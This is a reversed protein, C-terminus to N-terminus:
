SIVRGDSAVVTFFTQGKPTAFQIYWYSGTNKVLDSIIKVYVEFRGARKINATNHKVASQLADEWSIANDPMVNKLNFVVTDDGVTLTLSLTKTVDVLREIDCAFNTDYPNKQLQVPFNEDGIKLIGDLVIFNALTKGVPIVNVIGFATNKESIGNVVYPNERMGTYFQAKLTASEDTKM